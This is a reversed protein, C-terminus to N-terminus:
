RRRRRSRLHIAEPCSELLRAAEDSASAVDLAIPDEDLWADKRDRDLFFFESECISVRDGHSLVHIADPELLRGNVNTGNTSGLDVIAWRGEHRLIRCHAKSVGRSPISLSCEPRRGVTLDETDLVFTRGLLPGRIAVLRVTQDSSFDPSEFFGTQSETLDDNM